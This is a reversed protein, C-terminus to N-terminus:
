EKKGSIIWVPNLSKLMESGAIDVSRSVQLQVISPKVGHKKLSNVATELSKIVVTNIVILGDKKLAKFAGDIIAELNEGGGGIFVRDPDPLSSLGDPLELNNIEILSNFKIKNKEIQSIREVNKEVSIVRGSKIFFGAEISVSGSGAGLDWFVSDDKLQLKSLTVARVESKTILGKEHEYESEPLGPYPKKVSKKEESLFVALNPQSFKLEGATKLDYIEQKEDTEGMRELVCVKFWDIGHKILEKSIFGPGRKEDTFVAIKSNDRFINLARVDFERGHLSLPVVDSWREQIRSFAASVSNINPYIKINEKGIKKILYSGIGFYLPDGSALVVIKKEKKESIIFSVIEGLNKHIPVMEITKDQFMKLHRKGGILVDAEDIMKLHKSTFDEFSVGTGIINVINDMDKIM